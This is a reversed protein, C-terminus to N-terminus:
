AGYNFEGWAAATVDNEVVVKCHLETSVYRALPANDWNLNEARLVIGKTADVSGAVAIGVSEITNGAIERIAECTQLAVLEFDGIAQIPQHLREIVVGDKILGVLLNTGGIDVGIM